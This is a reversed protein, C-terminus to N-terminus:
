AAGAEAVAQFTVVHHLLVIRKQSEKASKEGGKELNIITSREGDGQKGWGLFGVGFSGGM